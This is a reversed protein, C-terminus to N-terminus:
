PPPTQLAAASRPSDDHLLLTLAVWLVGGGLAFAGTLYASRDIGQHGLLAAACMAADSADVVANFIASWRLWRRDRSAFAVLAGLAIDRVGFLRAQLLTSSNFQESPLQLVSAYLGPAVIPTLGIAMRGGGLVWGAYRSWDQSAPLTADTSAIVAAREAWPPPETQRVPVVPVLSSVLMLAVLRPM